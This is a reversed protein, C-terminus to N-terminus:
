TIAPYIIISARFLFPYLANEMETGDGSSSRVTIPSAAGTNKVIIDLTVKYQIVWNQLQIQDWTIMEKYRLYKLKKLHSEEGEECIKGCRQAGVGHGSMLNTKGVSSNWIGDERRQSGKHLFSITMQMSLYGKVRPWTEFMGWMYQIPHVKLEFQETM